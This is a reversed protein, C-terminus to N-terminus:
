NIVAANDKSDHKQSSKFPWEAVKKFGVHPKKAPFRVFLFDKFSFLIQFDTTMTQGFFGRLGRAKAM